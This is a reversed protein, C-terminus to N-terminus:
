SARPGLIWRAGYAEATVGTLKGNQGIVSEALQARTTTGIEIGNVRAVADSLADDLADRYDLGKGEGTTHVYVMQARAVATGLALGVALVAPWLRPVKAARLSGAFRRGRSGLGAPIVVLRRFLTSTRM